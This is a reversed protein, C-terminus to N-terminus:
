SKPKGDSTFGCRHLVFRPGEGDSLDAYHHLRFKGDHKHWFLFAYGCSRCKKPDSFIMPHLPKGAQKESPWFPLNSVAGGGEIHSRPHGRNRLPYRKSLESSIRRAKPADIGILQNSSCAAFNGFDRTRRDHHQPRTSKLGFFSTKIGYGVLHPSRKWIWM